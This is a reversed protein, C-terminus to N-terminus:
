STGPQPNYPRHRFFLRLDYVSCQQTIDCNRSIQHAHRTHEPLLCPRLVQRGAWKYQQYRCPPDPQRCQHNPGITWPRLYHFYLWRFCRARLTFHNCASANLRPNQIQGACDATDFSIPYPAPTTLSVSSAWRCLNKSSVTRNWLDLCCADFTKQRLCRITHVYISPYTISSLSPAFCWGYPPYPLHLFKWKKISYPEGRVTHTFFDHNWSEM